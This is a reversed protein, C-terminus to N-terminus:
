TPEAPLVSSNKSRVHEIAISTAFHPVGHLFNITGDIPDILWFIDKNKNLIKGTEETIFSYNKERCM